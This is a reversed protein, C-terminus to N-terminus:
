AGDSAIIMSRVFNSLTRNPLDRVSWGRGNYVAIGDQTGTWLYGRTDVALAMVANQPLGDKDRFVSLVPRGFDVPDAPGIPIAGSREAGSSTPSGALVLAISALAAAAVIRRM